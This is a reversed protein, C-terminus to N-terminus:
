ESPNTYRHTNTSKSSQLLTASDSTFYGVGVGAGVKRCNGVGVGSESRELIKSEPELNRGEWLKRSGVEVGLMFPHLKATLLKTAILLWHFDYHVALFRQKLLIKLLFQVMEVPIGLKPTHHLFHDLQVEPTPTPCFIRSRCLSSSRSNNPIRSRCWGFVESVKCSRSRSRLGAKCPDTSVYLAMTQIQKSFVRQKELMVLRVFYSNWM